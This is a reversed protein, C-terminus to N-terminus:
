PDSMRWMGMVKCASLAVLQLSLVLFYRERYDKDRLDYHAAPEESDDEIEDDIENDVEPGGQEEVDGDGHEDEGGGEGAGDHTPLDRARENQGRGPRAKAAPGSAAAGKAGVKGQASSRAAKAAEELTEICEECRQTMFEILSPKSLGPCSVHFWKGCRGLCPILFGLVPGGKCSFCQTASAGADGPGGGGVPPSLFAEPPPAQHKKPQEPESGAADLSGWGAKGGAHQGRSGRTERATVEPAVAKVGKSAAPRGAASKKREPVPEQPEHVEKKSGRVSRTAVGLTSEKGATGEVDKRRVPSRSARRESVDSGAVADASRTSRKPLVPEPEEEYEVM